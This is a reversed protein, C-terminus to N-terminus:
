RIWPAESTSWNGVYWLAGVQRDPQLVLPLPCEKPVSLAAREVRHGGFVSVSVRLPWAGIEVPGPQQEMVVGPVLRDPESTRSPPLVYVRDVCLGEEHLHGVARDYTEGVVDPFALAAEPAEDETEHTCGTMTALMILLLIFAAKM